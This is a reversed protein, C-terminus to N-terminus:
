ELLDSHTGIYALTLTLIDNKIKYILLWNSRAGGIHCERYGSYNGKLPHDNYEKPLPKENLLLEILNDILSVDLHRKQCLKYGKKFKHTVVLKLM